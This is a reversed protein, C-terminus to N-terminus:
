NRSTSSEGDSTPPPSRYKEAIALDFCEHDPNLPVGRFESRCRYCITMKGVLFYLVFDVVVAALLVLVGLSFRRPFAALILFTTGAVIVIGLGLKQPFDKRIFLEGCGCHPCRNM